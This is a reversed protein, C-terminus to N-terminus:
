DQRVVQLDNRVRLQTPLDRFAEQALQKHYYSAVRGTLIIEGAASQMAMVQRSWWDRHRALIPTLLDATEHPPDVIYRLSM